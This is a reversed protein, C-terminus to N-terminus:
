VGLHTFAAEAEDIVVEPSQTADIRVFRDPEDAILREYQDRVAALFATQEFKNTAGSRAVGTEPDIDFYLTADPPRTWPQHVGIIYELPRDIHDALSAAQYAYRSDSYRDSVVLAGRDIAPRVTEALHAAHDATFLFLEAIPDAADAALSRRVADGYWSQTPEQTFTAAPRSERLAEWVTTKGSGDIGELTVLM